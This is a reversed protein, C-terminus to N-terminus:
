SQFAEPITRYIFKLVYVYMCMYIYIHYKVCNLFLLHRQFSPGNENRDILMRCKLCQLQINLQTRAPKIEFIEIDVCARKIPQKLLEAHMYLLCSLQFTRKAYSPSQKLIICTITALMKLDCLFYFIFM